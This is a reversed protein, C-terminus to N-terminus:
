QLATAANVVPALGVELDWRQEQSSNPNTWVWVLEDGAAFTFGGYEGPLIRYNIDPEGGAGLAPFPEILYAHSPMTTGTPAEHIRLHSDVRIELTASGSAGSANSANGFRARFYVLVFREPLKFRAASARDTVTGMDGTGSDNFKVVSSPDPSWM